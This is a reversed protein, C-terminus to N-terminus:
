EHCLRTATELDGLEMAVYARSVEIRGLLDPDSSREAARELLRGAPRVRGHNVAEVARRHLEEATLM